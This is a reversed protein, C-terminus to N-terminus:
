WKLVIALAFGAVQQHFVPLLLFVVSNEVAKIAHCFWCCTAVPVRATSDLVGSLPIPLYIFLHQERSGKPYFLYIFHKQRKIPIKRCKRRQPGLARASGLRASGRPARKCVRAMRVSKCMGHSRVAEPSLPVSAEWQLFHLSAARRM